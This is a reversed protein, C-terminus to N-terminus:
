DNRAIRFNGGALRRSLARSVFQCVGQNQAIDSRSRSRKVAQNWQGFFPNFHSEQGYEDRNARQGLSFHVGSIPGFTLTHLTRSQRL